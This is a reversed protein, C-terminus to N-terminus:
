VMSSVARRAEAFVGVGLELLSPAARTTDAQTGVPDAVDDGGGDDQGGEM